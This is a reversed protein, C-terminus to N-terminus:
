HNFYSTLLRSFEFIFVHWFAIALPWSFHILVRIWSLKLDIFYGYARDIKLILEHLIAISAIVIYRRQYGRCYRHSCKSM